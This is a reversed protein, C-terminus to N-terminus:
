ILRRGKELTAFFVATRRLSKPTLRFGQQGTKSGSVKTCTTHTPSPSGVDTKRAPSVPATGGLMQQSCPRGGLRTSGAAVAPLVLLHREAACAICISPLLRLRLPIPRALGLGRAKLPLDKSLQFHVDRVVCCATSTNRVMVWASSCASM